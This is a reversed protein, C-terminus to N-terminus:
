HLFSRATLVRGALGPRCDCKLYLSYRFKLPRQWTLVWTKSTIEPVFPQAGTRLHQDRTAARALLEQSALSAVLPAKSKLVVAPARADQLLKATGLLVAGCMQLQSVTQQDCLAACIYQSASVLTHPRVGRLVHLTSGKM